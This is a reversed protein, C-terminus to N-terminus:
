SGALIDTSARSRNKPPELVTIFRNYLPGQATKLRNKLLELATKLYSLFPEYATRRRHSSNSWIGWWDLSAILNKADPMADTIKLDGLVHIIMFFQEVM